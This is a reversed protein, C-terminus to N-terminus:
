EGMMKSGMIWIEKEVGEGNMKMKGVWKEVGEFDGRMGEGIVGGVDMKEVEEGVEDRVEEGM